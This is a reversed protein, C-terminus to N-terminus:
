GRIGTAMTSVSIPDRPSWWYYIFTDKLHFSHHTSSAILGCKTCVWQDDWENSYIYLTGYGTSGDTHHIRVNEIKQIRLYFNNSDQHEINHQCTYPNGAASATNVLKPSPDGASGNLHTGIVLVLLVAVLVLAIRRIRKKM